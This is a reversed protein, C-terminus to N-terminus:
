PRSEKELLARVALGLDTPVVFADKFAEFGCRGDKRVFLGKEILSCLVPAKPNAPEWGKRDFRPHVLVQREGKTLGRAVTQPDRDTM